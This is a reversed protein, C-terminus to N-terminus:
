YDAPGRMIGLEILQKDIDSSDLNYTENQISELENRATNGAQVDAATSEATAKNYGADYRADGYRTILFGGLATLGLAVLLIIFYKNM